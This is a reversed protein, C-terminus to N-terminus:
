RLCMAFTSCYACWTEAQAFTAEILMMVEKDFAAIGTTLREAARSEVRRREIDLKIARGLMIAAQAARRPPGLPISLPSASTYMASTYGWTHDEYAFVRTDYPLHLNTDHQQSMLVPLSERIDTHCQLMRDLVYLSWWAWSKQAAHSSQEPSSLDCVDLHDSIHLMRTVAVCSSATLYARGSAGNGYEHYALLIGSLLLEMSNNCITQLLSYLNKIKWYEFSFMSNRCPGPAQTLLRMCLILLGTGPEPHTGFNAIRATFWPEYVIFAWTNATAFFMTAIQQIDEPYSCLQAVISELISAKIGEPSGELSAGLM